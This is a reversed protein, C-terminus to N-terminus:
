MQVLALVGVAALGLALLSGYSFSIFLSTGIAGAVGSRYARRLGLPLYVLLCLFFVGDFDGWFRETVMVILYLLFTFSHYNLSFVLHHLYHYPAFLYCVRLLLAFLPLMLFMMQPLYELLESVFERPNDELSAANKEIRRELDKVWAPSDEGAIDVSVTGGDDTGHIELGAEPSEEGERDVTIGIPGTMARDNPDAVDVGVAEDGADRIDIAVVRSFSLSLFLIFSIILYLRLPPVYRVRRGAMFETTLFGPRFLLPVLTRWIRSDWTFIEGIFESILDSFTLDGGTERQGCQSCYRGTLAAGCNRCCGPPFPTDTKM